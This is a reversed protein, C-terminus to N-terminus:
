TCAPFKENSEDDLLYLFLDSEVTKQIFHEYNQLLHPIYM